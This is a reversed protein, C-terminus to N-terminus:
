YCPRVEHLTHLNNLLTALYTSRLADTEDHTQPAPRRNVVATALDRLIAPDHPQTGQCVGDVYDCAVTLRDCLMQLARRESQMSALIHHTRPADSPADDTFRARQHADNLVIRETTSSPLSVTAPSWTDNHSFAHWAAESLLVLTLPTDPSLCRLFTAHMHAHHPAPETGLAYWGVVQRGPWVQQHLDWALRLAETDVQADDRLPAALSDVVEYRTGDMVHGVLVGAVNSTSAYKLARTRHEAISLAPLAHLEVHVAMALSTFAGRELHRPRTVYAPCFTPLRSAM